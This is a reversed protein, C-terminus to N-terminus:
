PNRPPADSLLSRGLILEQIETTGEVIPFVRADRLLREAPTGSRVGRPGAVDVASSAISVAARSAALKAASAEAVFSRGADKLEAAERVLARAASLDVYARALLTRKWEADDERVQRRLEEFASRAVGLACAAIGVRGSTLSGLAVTLGEGEAGLLGDAPLRVGDMVLEVTENGRLGLKDLRQAVSFGSTGPPVIFASIGRNGLTPDRTAFVLVVGATAANSIFMKTGRLVFGDGERSYRTALRATDSGVGPETLGFAGVGEGRALPRLYRDKQGDTGWRLIPHSCVSLHVAVVVAVAASVASLEELVATLSRADGGVGDWEPPIGLGLFREEALRKVLAPPLRDDRDIAEAVPRVEREAFAAARARWSDASSGVPLAM